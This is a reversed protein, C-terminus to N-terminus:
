ATDRHRLPYRPEVVVPGRVRAACALRLRAPDIGLKRIWAATRFKENKDAVSLNEPGDTVTMTCFTCQSAGGCKTPWEIGADYAARFITQGDKVQLILGDPEVRVHHVPRNIL